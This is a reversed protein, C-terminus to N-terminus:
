GDEGEEKFEMTLFLDLGYIVGILKDRSPDANEPRSFNVLQEVYAERIGKVLKKVEKTTPNQLWEEFEATRLDIETM